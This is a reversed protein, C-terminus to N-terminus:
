KRTGLATTLSDVFTATEEKGLRSQSFQNTGRVYRQAEAFTMPRIMGKDNHSLIKSWTPDRVLDVGAAPTDTYRSIMSVYDGFYDAPTGGQNILEVIQPSGSFKASARQMLTTTLAQESLEGTYLRRTWDSAESDAIDLMYRSALQRVDTTVAAGPAVIAAVERRIQADDWGMATANWVLTDAQAQTLSGGLEGAFMSMQDRMTRTKAQAAAPDTGWLQTWERAKPATQKWWTTARLKGEFLEPSWEENTAQEILSYLEPIQGVWTYGPWRELMTQTLDAV